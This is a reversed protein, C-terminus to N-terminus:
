ESSRTRLEVGEVRRERGKLQNNQYHSKFHFATLFFFAGIGNAVVDFIDARRGPIFYQHIEDSVGYLFAIVFALVFLYHKTPNADRLALYILSALIGYEFIHVMKDFFAFSPTRIPVPYSSLFFILVMYLLSLIWYITIRRKIAKLSKLGDLPSILFLLVEGKKM